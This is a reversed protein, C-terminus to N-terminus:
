KVYALQLVVTVSVSLLNFFVFLFFFVFQQSVPKNWGYPWLNVDVNNGLVSLAASEVSSTIFSYLGCSM